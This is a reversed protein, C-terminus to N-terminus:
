LLACGAWSHQHHAMQWRTMGVDAGDVVSALGSSRVSEHRGFQIGSRNLLDISDQAFMDATLSFRFNFQWCCIRPPVNGNEDHFSIGLQILKLRCHLPVIAICLCRPVLATLTLEPDLSLRVSRFPPSYLSRRTM